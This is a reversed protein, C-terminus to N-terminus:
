GAPTDEYTVPLEPVSRDAPQEARQPASRDRIAGIVVIHQIRTGTQVEYDQDSVEAAPPEDQALAVTPM